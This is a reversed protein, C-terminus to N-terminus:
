SRLLDFSFSLKKTRKSYRFWFMLRKVKFVFGFSGEDGLPYVNFGQKIREGEYRWYFM